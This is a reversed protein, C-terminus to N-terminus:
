EDDLDDFDDFDFEEQPPNGDHVLSLRRQLYITRLFVYPDLQQDLLGDADLLEARTDIANVVGLGIAVESDVYATPSTFADGVSGILDRNSSPGLLPLMLYWGEGVGWRGLTQGLDEDNKELGVWSAVDIFGLLGATTNLGFRALDRGSQKVKGQLLANVITTPYFLNDLFNSVGRRAKGPVVKVYGSAVPRLVYKDATRNFKYIGRNVPELPDAPDDAPTHACAGLMLCVFLSLSLRVGAM